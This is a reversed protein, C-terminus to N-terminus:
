QGTRGGGGALDGRGRTSELNHVHVHEGPAIDCTARGIVEGYKYCLGGQNIAFIAVKHFAPVNEKVTLLGSELEIVQGASLIKLCTVVNDNKNIRLVTSAHITHPM